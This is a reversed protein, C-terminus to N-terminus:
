GLQSVAPYALFVLFAVCMLLQAMLMSQSNEGAAGEIDVMEKRRM